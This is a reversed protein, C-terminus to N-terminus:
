SINISGQIAADVDAKRIGPVPGLCSANAALLHVLKDLDVTVRTLKTVAQASEHNIESQLLGSIATPHLPSNGSRLRQGPMPLGFVSYDAGEHNDLYNPLSAPPGQEEIVNFQSPTNDLTQGFGRGGMAPSIALNPISQDRQVNPQYVTDDTLITSNSVTDRLYIGREELYEEVDMAELWEGQLTVSSTDLVTRTKGKVLQQIWPAPARYVVNTGGEVVRYMQPLSPASHLPYQFDTVAPVLMSLGQLTNAMLADEGLLRLPLTLATFEFASRSSLISVVREFCARILRASLPIRSSTNMRLSITASGPDVATSGPALTDAAQQDVGFGQEEIAHSLPLVKDTASAITAMQTVADNLHFLLNPSNRINSSDLIRQHLASFTALAKDLASSLKEARVRESEQAEQKRARYSRQALRMRQRQKQNSDVTDQGDSIPPRGPRAPQSDGM